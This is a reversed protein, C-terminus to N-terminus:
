ASKVVKETAVTLNELTLVSRIPSHVKVMAKHTANGRSNSIM